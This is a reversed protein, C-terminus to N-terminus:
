RNNFCARAKSGMRDIKTWYEQDHSMRVLMLDDKPFVLINQGYHGAAFFMDEPINPNYKHRPFNPGFTKVPPTANSLTDPHPNIWFGLSYYGAEETIVDDTTGSARMGLGLVRAKDVFTPHIVQRDGFWGGNLYTYGFRAM